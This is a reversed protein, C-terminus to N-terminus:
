SACSRRWSSRTSRSRSTTSGGLTSGAPGPRAGRRPGDSLYIPISHTREDDLLAEAVRGATSAPMMVDLLIVDPQESRAKELGTPGDGADIVEMQEAELNVRCLLRIPAEDDIILVRTMENGPNSVRVRKGGARSGNRSFRGGPSRLTFVFSSGREERPRVWIRGACPPWCSARSHVLGPRHGGSSLDRSESAARYFKRFILEQESEPVGIGEDDVRV